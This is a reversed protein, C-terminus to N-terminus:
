AGAISDHVPRTIGLRPGVIADAARASPVNETVADLFDDRELACLVGDTLATVSATRPV